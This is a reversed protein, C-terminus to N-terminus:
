CSSSILPLSSPATETATELAMHVPSCIAGGKRAKVKAEAKWRVNTSCDYIYM